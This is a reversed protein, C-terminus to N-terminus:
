ETDGAELLHIQRQLERVVLEDDRVARALFVAVWAAVALFAVLLAVLAVLASTM